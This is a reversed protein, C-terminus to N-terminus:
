HKGSHLRWRSKRRRWSARTAETSAEGELKNPRRAAGSNCSLHSFDINSLDFFRGAPDCSDLWPEKHEISLEDVAKIPKGCRYCKDRGSEALLAFLIMKRLKASATGYPMGLQAAKKENAM